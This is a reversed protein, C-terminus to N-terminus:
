IAETRRSASTHRDDFKLAAIEQEIWDDVLTPDHPLNPAVAATIVTEHFRRKAHSWRELRLVGRGDAYVSEKKEAALAPAHQRIVARAAAECARARKWHRSATFVGFFLLTPGLIELLLILPLAMLLDM